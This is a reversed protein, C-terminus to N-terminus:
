RAQFIERRLITSMSTAHKISKAVAELLRSLAAVLMTEQQLCLYAASSFLYAHSNIAKLKCAKKEWAELNKIPIASRGKNSLDLLSADAELTPVNDTPLYQNQSKYFKTQVLPTVLNQLCIWYKSCKDTNLKDQIFKTTNEVLKSQPLVLLPTAHSEM